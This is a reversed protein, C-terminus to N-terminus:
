GDAIRGRMYPDLSLWHNRVLVQGPGPEPVPSEVLRFNSEEVSYSPRNDLVIQRNLM